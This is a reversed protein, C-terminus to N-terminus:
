PACLLAIRRPRFVARGEDLEIESYAKTEGATPIRYPRAAPDEASRKPEAWSGFLAAFEAAIEARRDFWHQQAAGTTKQYGIEAELYVNMLDQPSLASPADSPDSGVM